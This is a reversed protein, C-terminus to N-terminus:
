FNVSYWETGAGMYCGAFLYGSNPVWVSFSLAQANSATQQPSSFVSLGDSSVGNVGCTITNNFGAGRVHLTPTWTSGPSNVPMSVEWGPDSSCSSTVAGWSEGFCSASAPSLAHGAYAGIDNSSAKAPAAALLGTLALGCVLASKSTTNMKENETENIAFATIDL